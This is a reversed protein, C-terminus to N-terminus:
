LVSLLTAIAVEPRPPNCTPCHPGPGPINLWFGDVVRETARIAYVLQAATVATGPPNASLGALLGVGPSAQRAQQAAAAVFGAYSATERELSQAQFEIVDAHEAFQGALELELFLEARSSRSGAALVTTLNLAPAVIFQLGHLRAAHAAAAAAAVPDRQEGPPTFPGAEPDYVVAQTRGPLRGRSVARVLDAASAFIVAPVAGALALPRQGPQVLEYVRTRALDAAVLANTAVQALAQRALLWAPAPPAGSRPGALASVFTAAGRTAGSADATCGTM